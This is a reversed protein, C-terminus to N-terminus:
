ITNSALVASKQRPMPINDLRKKLPSIFTKYDEILNAPVNKSKPLKEKFPDVQVGNKWFRYCVHPGSTNGTMGVYGIVDGQKVVQGVNVNRKKMHLYQTSYTRNHKIKVYNGNGGTYSSKEVIGDATALIESGMPAAFDTGKHPRVKNGYLAIRRSLNYRSSISSFQVPSTLFTRQLSGAEEDFYTTSFEARPVGDYNFAYFERGRHKFLAAQIKDIGGYVSDDIMRQDYIIKFEDGEYLRFFDITWAYIDSMDNILQYPLGLGDMTESLSSSIVGAAVKTEITIQRQEVYPANEDDLQIVVYELKNPQYIFCQPEQLSDNTRLLTFPKGVGIRSLDYTEKTKEVINYIDPYSMKYRELIAGFSDGSKVTDHVVNYANINFGFEYQPTLTADVIEEYVNHDESTDSLSSTLVVSFIALVAILIIYKKPFNDLM